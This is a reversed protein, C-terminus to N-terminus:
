PPMYTWGGDTHHTLVMAVARERSCFFGVHSLFSKKECNEGAQCRRNECSVQGIRRQRRARCFWLDVLAVDVLGNTNASVGLSNTRGRLVGVPELLLLKRLVAIRVAVGFVVFFAVQNRGVDVHAMAAGSLAVATAGLGLSLTLHKFM